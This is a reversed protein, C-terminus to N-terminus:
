ELHHRWFARLMIGRAELPAKAKFAKDIDDLTAREVDRLDLMKAFMQASQALNPDEVSGFGQFKRNLDAIRVTMRPLFLDMLSQNFSGNPPIACSLRAADTPMGAIDIKTLLIFRVCRFLLLVIWVLLVIIDVLL